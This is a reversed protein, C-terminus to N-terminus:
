QDEDARANVCESLARKSQLWGLITGTLERLLRKESLVHRRKKRARRQNKAAAFQVFSEIQSPSSNKDACFTSALTNRMLYDEM